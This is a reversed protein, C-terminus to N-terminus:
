ASVELRAADLTQSVLGRYHQYRSGLGILFVGVLSGDRHYGVAVDGDLEGELVRVDESGQGLMGFSQLRHAGLDSWFSPMPAFDTVVEDGALHFALNRGARRGTDGAMMWHEIRGQIGRALPHPFRAIDGAALVDGRGAVRLEGDCLVGDSLDLDNGALWEVNPISGVSEVLVTAEIVSGDSLRVGRVTTDGICELPQVGLHLHVGATLLRDRVAAAAQDGIARSMPLAMPEILHVDLGLGTLTMALECGIFGAGVIMVTASPVLAVKLRLADDATRLVHRGGLPGPLELRRPRLGSAIILGAWTQSRGSETVLTRNALDVNAVPDGLCWDVGELAPPIRFFDTDVIERVLAAKSLPPRNYPLHQEAGYVVVDRACTAKVLGEAARLGALSAGVIVCPANDGM